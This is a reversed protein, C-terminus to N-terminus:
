EKEVTDDVTDLPEEHLMSHIIKWVEDSSIGEEKLGLMVSTKLPEDYYYFQKKDESVYVKGHEVDLKEAKEKDVLTTYDFSSSQSISYQDYILHITTYANPVSQVSVEAAVKGDIRYTPQLLPATESYTLVSKNPEFTSQGQSAVVEQVIEKTLLPAAEETTDEASDATTENTVIEGNEDTTFEMPQMPNEQEKVMYYVDSEKWFYLGESEYVAVSGEEFVPELQKVLEEYVPLDAVATYSFYLDEHLLKYEVYSSPQEGGVYGALVDAFPTEENKDYLTPTKVTQLFDMLQAYKKQEKVTDVFVEEEFMGKKEMVTYTVLGILSLALVM